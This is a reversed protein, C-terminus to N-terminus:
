SEVFLTQLDKQTNEQNVLHYGYDTNIEFGFKKQTETLGDVQIVDIDNLISFIERKYETDENGVLHQGKSEIVYVLELNGEDNKKAAVFDPRIKNRRWGEIAYWNRGVKNRFWWVISEQKDLTDAVTLELDNMSTSDVDDYLYNNYKNMFQPITIVDKRPVSFGAQEEESVALILKGEDVYKKFIAEEQRAKQEEFVNLIESVIFGSHVRVVDEELEEYIIKILRKSFSYAYFSNDIHEQLRRTLYNEKLKNELEVDEVQKKTAFEEDEITILNGEREIKQKSLSPKIRSELINTLDVKSYDLKSRIDVEYNFRRYTKDKIKILWVPLFLSEPYNEQYEKQIKVPKTTSQSEDGSNNVNRVLDELGEEKFGKQIQKLIKEVRGNSFYVYSEDLEKVGTKEAFPQRLIRGVLQTTGQNSNVNPIIGLIYAFPCDWGEKLAEKTIIYRIENESSLLDMDEIDNVSSTKIAIEHKPVGIDILYDKVDESHVFGKGRQDKGTREVQILSIPRIYRGSEQKYTVAKKELLDRKDKIEKIMTQWDEHVVPPKLHMDLKVMEENKLEQGSVSILINTGSKPTASFGLIMSPNLTNLTKKATPTFVKHFEDVIMLPNTLRVVNGLSTKVQPQLSDLGSFADLNPVEKLLESHLDYRNDEPFFTDYAGSDEFVKLSENTTRNVSQIMLFLIVLNNQVDTKKIIQNKEAIITNGGSAQDIIQRYPHSKDRLKGITQSYITESPVMWVVLGTRQHVFRQQHERIAEVALLTKGGGTPVKVCVRPYREQLGNEPFDTANTVGVKKLAGEVWNFNRVMEPDISETLQEISRKQNYAVELFRQLQDVVKKQYKKLIM